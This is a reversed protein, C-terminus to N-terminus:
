WFCSHTQSKASSCQVAHWTPHNTALGTRIMDDRFPNYLKLLLRKTGDERKSSSSEIPYRVLEVLCLYPFLKAYLSITRCIDIQIIHWRCTVDKSLQSLWEGGNLVQVQVSIVPCNRLTQPQGLYHLQNSPHINVVSDSTNDGSVRLGCVSGSRYGDSFGFRGIAMGNEDMRGSQASGNVARLQGSLPVVLFVLLPSPPAVLAGVNRWTSTPTIVSGM